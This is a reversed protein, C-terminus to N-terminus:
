IDGGFRWVTIPKLRREIKEYADAPPTLDSILNLLGMRSTDGAYSDNLSNEIEDKLINFYENQKDAEIPWLEKKKCIIKIPLDEFSNMNQYEDCLMDLYTIAINKEINFIATVIEKNSYAVHIKLPLNDIWDASTIGDANKENGAQMVIYTLLAPLIHKTIKWNGDSDFILDGSSTSSTFVLMEIAKDTKWVFPQSGYVEVPLKITNIKCVPFSVSNESSGSMGINITNCTFKNLDSILEATMAVAETFQKELKEADLKAFIGDPTISQQHADHYAKQFFEAPSPINKDNKIVKKVYREQANGTLMLNTPFISLFPESEQEAADDIEMDSLRLQRKLRAEAPNVLFDVLYRIQIRRPSNDANVAVPMTVRETINKNNEDLIASLQENAVFSLRIDQSKLDALALIRDHMDYNVFQDYLDNDDAIQLYQLSRGNLPALAEVFKDASIINRVLYSELQTVISCPNLEVDECLDRCNYTLVLRDGVSLLIDLFLQRNIDPISLGENNSGDRRLDLTSNDPAGPFVGENLGIIYINKFPLLRGRRMSTITVGNLLPTGYNAPIDEISGQIKDRVMALSMGDPYCEAFDVLSDLQKFLNSRIYNEQPMDEPIALNNELLARIIKQWEGCNPKKAFSSIQCIDQYLSEISFSFRELTELDSMEMDQYPAINLWSCATDPNTSATMIRGLRMRRLGALWTHSDSLKEPDFSGSADRCDKCIDESGTDCAQCKDNRQYSHFIGLKTTWALWQQAMDMNAGIAALYCPNTILTFIDKRSFSSGILNFLATVAASYQSIRSAKADVLNYPILRGNRTFVEHLIPLYSDVDTVMVAFDTLRLAPDDDVRALINQYVSEVERHLGPCGWVQLSKDQPLKLIYNNDDIARQVVKLVTPAVTPPASPLVKEETDRQSIMTLMQRASKGWLTQLENNGTRANAPMCQYLIVKRQEAIKCLLDLHFPSTHALDFIYIPRGDAPTEDFNIKEAFQALTLHKPLKQDRWGGSAFIEQYLRMQWGQMLPNITAVAFIQGNLWGNTMEIRQCEYELFLRSVKDALQWGRRQADAPWDGTKKDMDGIYLWMPVMLPDNRLFPTSLLSFILQQLTPADLRIYKESTNYCTLAKWLSNELFQYEIGAAIELNEALQLNIWRSLNINPVVVSASRFLDIRGAVFDGRIDEALEKVLDMINASIRVQLKM